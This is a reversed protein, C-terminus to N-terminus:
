QDPLLSGFKSQKLINAARAGARGGGIDFFNEILEGRAGARESWQAEIDKIPQSLFERLEDFAGPERTDFVFIGKAMAEHAAPSLPRGPVVLYVVPKGSMVCMATTSSTRATVLIKSNPIMYRLDGAEDYVEINPAQRAHAMVPDRDPYRSSPYPKHLVRHPLKALVDDIVRVEFKTQDLDRMGRNVMQLNGIHLMTSIYWITPASMNTPKQRGARRYEQELGVPISKGAGIGSSNTIKAAEDTHTFFIDASTTEFWVEDRDGVLGLERAVGHQFCIVPINQEKAAVCLAAAQPSNVLNVMLFRPEYKKLAALTKQWHELAVDFQSVCSDIDSLLYEVAPGVASPTLWTAFKEAIKPGLWNMRVSVTKSPPPNPDLIPAQLRRLGYGVKVFEYATEKILSNEGFVLVTGRPSGAPVKEWFTVAVRYVKAAWSAVKLRDRVSPPPGLLPRDFSLVNEPLRFERFGTAGELVRALPTTLIRRPLLTDVDYTLVAVPRNFDDETLTTIKFIQTQFRSIRRAAVLASAALDPNAEMEQYLAKAWAIVESYFEGLREPPFKVDTATVDIEPDMLLGPSSTRVEAERSLGKAWAAELASRSDAYVVEIDAWSEAEPLPLTAAGNTTPPNM